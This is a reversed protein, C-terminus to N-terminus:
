LDPLDLEDLNNQKVLREHNLILEWLEQNNLICRAVKRIKIDSCKRM